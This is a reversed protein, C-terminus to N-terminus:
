IDMRQCLVCEAAFTCCFICMRLYLSFNNIFFSLYRDIECCAVCGSFAQKRTPTYRSTFSTYGIKIFIKSRRQLIPQMIRVYSRPFATPLCINSPVVFFACVCTFRAIKTSFTPACRYYLSCSAFTTVLNDNTVSCLDWM